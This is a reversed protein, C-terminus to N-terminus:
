WCFKMSSIQKNTTIISLPFSLRIAKFIFRDQLYINQCLEIFVPDFSHWPQWNDDVEFNGSKERIKVQCKVTKWVWQCNFVLYTDM